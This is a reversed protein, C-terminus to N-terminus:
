ILEWVNSNWYTLGGANSTAGYATTGLLSVTNFGSGENVEFTDGDIFFSHIKGEFYTNGQPSAGNSRGFVGIFFKYNPDLTTPRTGDNNSLVLTDNIYLRETPATDYWGQKITVKQGGYNAVLDYTSSYNISWTASILGNSIFNLQWRNDILALVSYGILGITSTPKITPVDITIGYEFDGTSPVQYSKETQPINFYDQQTNGGLSLLYNDSTNDFVITNGLYAKKIETGGLYGKNIDTNGLKLSM